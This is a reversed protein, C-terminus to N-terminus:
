HPKAAAHADGTMGQLDSESLTRALAIADDFSKWVMLWDRHKWGAKAMAQLPQDQVGAIVVFVGGRHLRELVSELNVLGTADIVPVSRMDLIVVRVDSDITKLAGAAKHAAGFFLPGAIQYVIVGKPLETPVDPHGQPLLEVNSVDAMRQIFLLAAMVVGVTVAIVMDFVVTLGFCILLVAVDHRPAVRLVHAFHKIESMNWAVVLLLAAMAAMPLYGLWPAFLLMAMMLFAAHLIAAIPSRAGARINTATRAIAGTAAFGGFFPAVVNGVGQAILEADPDHKKGTMGDAVVASLLSEIAGLAAIALAATFLEQARDFTLWGAFSGGEPGPQNWPLTFMPLTQPIGGFKSEITIVSFGPVWHALAAALIAALPLAVVPAPVKRTLKPLVLLVALTMLGIALDPMHTTPMARLIAAIRELFHEPMRAIDLGLFDRLQLTAIVVAIGSTFGTTVPYPIFEILRGLRLVGMMTLALGAILSACLLGAVGFKHAIPALLVVFAATPGSVQVKSGGLAAITAGAIVGTYLGHAPPVGSAIALAMCLPLAVVGVVLGALFDSRLDGLSYGQQFTRRLAYGPTVTLQGVIRSVAVHRKIDQPPKSM